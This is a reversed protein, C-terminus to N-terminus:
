ERRRSPAGKGRPPEHLEHIADKVEQLEEEIREAQAVLGGSRKGEPSPTGWLAAAINPLMDLAANIKLYLRRCFEGAIALVTLGVGKVVLEVNQPAAPTVQAASLLAIATIAGGLIVVRRQM